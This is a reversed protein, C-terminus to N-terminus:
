PKVLRYAAFSRWERDLPRVRYLRGKEKERKKKAAGQLLQRCRGNGAGEGAQAEGAM